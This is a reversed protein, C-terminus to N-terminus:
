EYEVNHVINLLQLLLKRLCLLLQRLRLCSLLV